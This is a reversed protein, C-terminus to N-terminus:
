PAEEQHLALFVTAHLCIYAIPIFPLSCLVCLVNMVVNSPNALIVNGLFVFVSCTSCLMTIFHTLM